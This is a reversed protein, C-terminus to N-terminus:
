QAPSIAGLKFREWNYSDMKDRVAVVEIDCRVAVGESGCRM